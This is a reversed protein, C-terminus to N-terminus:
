PPLDFQSFYSFFNILQYYKVILFDGLHFGSIFPHSSPIFSAPFECVGQSRDQLHNNLWPNNPSATRCLKQNSKVGKLHTKYLM